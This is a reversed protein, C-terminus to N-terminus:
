NTDLSGTSSLVYKKDREADAPGVDMGRMGQSQLIDDTAREYGDLADSLQKQQDEIQDLSAEVDAQTKEAQLVM